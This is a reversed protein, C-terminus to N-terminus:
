AALGVTEGLVDDQQGAVLNAELVEVLHDGRGVQLIELPHGGDGLCQEVLVPLADDHAGGALRALQEPGHRIVLVPLLELANGVVVVIQLDLRKAVVGEHQSVAVHLRLLVQPLEVTGDHPQALLQVLGHTGGAVDVEEVRLILHVPM